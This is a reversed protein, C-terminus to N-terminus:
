QEVGSPMDWRWHPCVGGKFIEIELGSEVEVKFIAVDDATWRSYVLWKGDPSWSPMALGGGWGSGKCPESRFSADVIKRSQSGDKRVVYIGDLATYAVWEGDPSWAPALGEGVVLAEGAAPDVVVVEARLPCGNRYFRDVALLGDKSLDASGLFEEDVTGPTEYLTALVKCSRFDALVIRERQQGALELPLLLKGDSTARVRGASWEWNSCYFWEGENSVVIASYSHFYGGPAADARVALYKGDPSWAPMVTYLDTWLTRTILGTGDPEIFGFPNHQPESTLLEFVIAREPFGQDKPWLRRTCGVLIVLGVLLWAVRTFRKMRSM